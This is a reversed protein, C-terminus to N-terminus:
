PMTENNNLLNPSTSQSSVNVDIMRTDSLTINGLVTKNLIQETNFKIDDLMNTKDKIDKIDGGVVSGLSNIGAALIKQNAFGLQQNETVNVLEKKVKQIEQNAQEISITADNTFVSKIYSNFYFVMGGIIALGIMITYYRKRNSGNDTSSSM